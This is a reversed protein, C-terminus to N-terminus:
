SVSKRLMKGGPRHDSYLHQALFLDTSGDAPSGSSSHRLCWQLSLPGTIPWHHLMLTLAGRQLTPLGMKLTPTITRHRKGRDSAWRPTPVTRTAHCSDEITWVELFQKFIRTWLIHIMKALFPPWSLLFVSPLPPCLTLLSLNENQGLQNSQFRSGMAKTEGLMKNPCLWASNKNAAWPLLQWTRHCLQVNTVCIAQRAFCVNVRPGKYFLTEGWYLNCCSLWKVMSAGTPKEM